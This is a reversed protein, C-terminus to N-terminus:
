GIPNIIGAAMWSGLSCGVFTTAFSITMLMKGLSKGKNTFYFSIFDTGGTSAGVIYLISVILSLFVGHVFGYLLLTLAKL